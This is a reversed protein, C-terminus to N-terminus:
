AACITGSKPLTSYGHATRNRENQSEKGARRDHGQYGHDGPQPIALAGRYDQIGLADFARDLGRDQRLSMERRHDATRDVDDLLGADYEVTLRGYTASLERDDHSLTIAVPVDGVDHGLSV